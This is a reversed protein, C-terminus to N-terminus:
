PWYYNIEMLDKVLGLGGITYRWARQKKSLEEPHAFRHFKYQADDSMSGGNASIRAMNHKITLFDPDQVLDTFTKFTRQGETLTEVSSHTLKDLDARLHTNTDGVGLVLSHSADLLRNVKNAIRPTETEWFQRQYESAKHAETATAGTVIMLRDARTTLRDADSTLEDGVANM